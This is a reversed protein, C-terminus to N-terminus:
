ARRAFVAEQELAVVWDQMCPPASPGVDWGASAVSKATDADLQLVRSGSDSTTFQFTTGSKKQIKLGRVETQGKPEKGAKADDPSAYWRISGDGIEFWRLQWGGMFSPSLKLLPGALRIKSSSVADSRVWSPSMASSAAPRPSPSRAQPSASPRPSSPQARPSAPPWQSSQQARPSAPPRSAPRAPSTTATPDHGAVREKRVGAKVEADIDKRYGMDQTVAQKTRAGDSVSARQAVGLYPGSFMPATTRVVGALNYICVVVSKMNKKEYLDVTSFVDKELVGLFRCAHIFATINEMQKFPMDSTNIRPCSGPKITNSVECLVRGDHLWDGLDQSSHQGSVQELWRRVEPELSSSPGLARAALDSVVDPVPPSGRSPSAPRAAAGGVAPVLLTQRKAPAASAASAPYGSAASTTEQRPSKPAVRPSQGHPVPSPTRSAGAGPDEGAIRQKRAGARVEVDIDKRFGSDQTVTQKQRAYDSVAGTQAVGLYPGRYSPASTRIVSGLNYLCLWVSRLNKQEYLDVTSFVDKELVGLARAAHIFATVNEMQKFPMTGSNIRPCIGPKIKNALRCLVQGDKLWDGLDQRGRREGTVAEVWTAVESELDVM